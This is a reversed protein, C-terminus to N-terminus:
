VELNMILHLKIVKNLKLLICPKGEMMGYANDENCKATLATFDVKCAIEEDVRTTNVGTCPVNNM